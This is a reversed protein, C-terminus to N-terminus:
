RQPMGKIGGTHSHGNTRGPGGPCLDGRTGRQHFHVPCTPAMLLSPALSLRTPTPKNQQFQENAKPVNVVNEKELEMGMQQILRLHLM